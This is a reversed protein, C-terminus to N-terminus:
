LIGGCASPFYTLIHGVELVRQPHCLDKVSQGQPDAHLSEQPSQTRHCEATLETKTTNSGWTGNDGSNAVLCTHWADQWTSPYSSASNKVPNALWGQQM